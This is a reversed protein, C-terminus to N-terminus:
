LHRLKNSKSPIARDGDELVLFVRFAGCYLSVAIIECTISAIRRFDRMDSHLSTADSRRRFKLNFCDCTLKEGWGGM